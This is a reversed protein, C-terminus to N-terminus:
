VALRSNRGGALGDLPGNLLESSSEGEKLTKKAALKGRLTPKGTLTEIQPECLGM